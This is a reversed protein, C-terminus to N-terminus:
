GAFAGPLGHRWPYLRGRYPANKRHHPVSVFESGSSFRRDVPQEDWVSGDASALLAKLTRSMVLFEQLGLRTHGLAPVILGVVARLSSCHQETRSGAANRTRGLEQLRSILEAMAESVGLDQEQRAVHSVQAPGRGSGDAHPLTRTTLANSVGRVATALNMQGTACLREFQTTFAQSGELDFRHALRWMSTVLVARVVLFERVPRDAPLRDAASAIRRVASDLPLEGGIAVQLENM